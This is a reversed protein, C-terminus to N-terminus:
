SSPEGIFRKGEAIAQLAPVLEHVVNHKSIYGCAGEALAAEALDSPEAIGLFLIRSSPSVQSIQRAAELADSLELGIDILIVDPKLGQSKRV